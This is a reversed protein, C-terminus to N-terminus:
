RGPRAAQLRQVFAAHERGALGQDLARDVGAIDFRMMAATDLWLGPFAESRLIGDSGPALREYQGARLAFWDIIEDAVRWVLYEKAENRRYVRLKANMDIAATSASVEAVLEPAGEVYDDAGIRVTGGHEPAVFLMADPQPENDLDLRLTSDAGGEVGPTRGVYRSLWGVLTFHPKGHRRQRVPSPIYVVGEILEAKKVGPMAAYRREFEARTLHDGNEM